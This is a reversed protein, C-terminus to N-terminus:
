GDQRRTRGLTGVLAQPPPEVEWRRLPHLITANAWCVQFPSAHTSGNGDAQVDVADLV